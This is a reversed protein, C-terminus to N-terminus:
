VAAFASKVPVPTSVNKEKSDGGMVRIYIGYPVVTISLLLYSDDQKGATILKSVTFHLQPRRSVIQRGQKCIVHNVVVSQIYLVTTM